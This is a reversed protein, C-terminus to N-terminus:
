VLYIDDKKVAKTTYHVYQRYGKNNELKATASEFMEATKQAVYEAKTTENVLMQDSVFQQQEWNPLTEGGEVRATYKAVQSVYYDWNRAAQKAAGRASAQPDIGAIHEFIRQADKVAGDTTYLLTVKTPTVKTIIGRRYMGRSYGYVLDGVQAIETDKHGHAETLAAHGEHNAPVAAINALAIDEPSKVTAADIAAYHAALCGPCTPVVGGGLLVGWRGKRETQTVKTPQIAPLFKTCSTEALEQEPHLRELRHIVKGTRTCLVKGLDFESRPAALNRNMSM